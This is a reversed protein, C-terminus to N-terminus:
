KSSKDIEVEVRRNLMRGEPLYNVFKPDQVGQGKASANAPLKTAARLASIASNARQESLAQNYEASGTSDCYGTVIVGNADRSISEGMLNIMQKAHDNIEYANFDFSLMAFHELNERDITRNVVRTMGDAIVQRGDDTNAVMKYHIPQNIYKEAGPITYTTTPPPAGQGSMPTGITNGNQDLSITWDKFKQDTPKITTEFRIITEGVTANDRSELKVPETLRPDSSSIEVRRNEQKGAGTVPNTALEPLNRQDVTIRSGDIGWTNVLYDKVAMARAKSLKINNKEAGSNCNTGTLTVTATPYQKLRSGLVDLVAHNADIETKGKLSEPSFGTAGMASYRSPILASNDDFFVYPLLPMSSRTHTAQQPVVPEPAQTNDPLVGRATITAEVPVVQPPPPEDHGVDFKLSLGVQITSILYESSTTKTAFDTLWYNYFVEPTLWLKSGLPIDYGVGAKINALMGSASPVAAGGSASTAHAFATSIPLQLSPGLMLHLSNFAYKFLIDAGLTSYSTALNAAQSATGTVGGTTTPTGNKWSVGLSNYAIRPAFMFSGGIPFEGLLHIEPGIGTSGTSFDALGDPNYTKSSPSNIDVGGGFGLTTRTPWSPRDTTTSTAGTTSSQAIGQTPSTGISLLFAFLTVSFIRYFPFRYFANMLLSHHGEDSPTSCLRATSKVVSSTDDSSAVVTM